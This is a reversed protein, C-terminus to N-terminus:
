CRSDTAAHGCLFAAGMEAIPEEKRYNSSGFPCLDTLTKRNLRAEHGTSHTMEHYLTSYYEEESHFTEPKPMNIKDSAPQYYARAEGHGIKPARKYGKAIKEAEEIPQFDITEVNEDIPAEIGECQDVNFVRYYRLM